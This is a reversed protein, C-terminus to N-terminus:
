RKYDNKPLSLVYMKKKCELKKRIKQGYKRKQKDRQVYIDLQEETKKYKEDRGLDTGRYKDKQIDKLGCKQRDTDKYKDRDFCGKVLQKGEVVVRVVGVAM